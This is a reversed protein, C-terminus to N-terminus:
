PRTWIGCSRWCSFSECAIVGHTGKVECSPASDGYRESSQHAPLWHQGRALPAATSSAASATMPSSSTCTTALRTFTPGTFCKASLCISTRRPASNVALLQYVMKFICGQLLYSLFAGFSSAITEEMLDRNTCTSTTPRTPHRGFLVHLTQPM